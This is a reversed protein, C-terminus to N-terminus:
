RYTRVAIDRIQERQDAILAAAAERVAAVFETEDLTRLTGPQIRVTWERMGRAEVQIRGDASQGHAHLDDRAAQFERDQRGLAPSEHTVPQGTVDSRVRFYEAMRRAWLLRALQALRRSLDPETLQAYDRITLTVDDRGTLEATLSGDPLAARVRLADLRDALEGV